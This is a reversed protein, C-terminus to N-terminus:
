INYLNTEDRVITKNHGLMSLKMVQVRQFNISMFYFGIIHYLNLERPNFAVSYARFHGSYLFPLNLVSHLIEYYGLV